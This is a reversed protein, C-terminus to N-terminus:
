AVSMSKGQIANGSNSVLVNFGPHERPHRRKEKHESAPTKGSTIIYTFEGMGDVGVHVAGLARGLAMRGLVERSIEPLLSRTLIYDVNRAGSEVERCRGAISEVLDDSYSFRANHNQRIREEIRGVQLRIIQCMLADSIPCYPVVRLRGLFAQKFIPVERESKAELLDPRIAEALNDLATRLLTMREAHRSGTAEERDLIEIELQLDDIRRRSDEIAPPTANQSLAV